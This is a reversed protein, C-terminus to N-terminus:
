GKFQSQIVKGPVYSISVRSENIQKCKGNYFSRHFGEFVPLIDQNILGYCRGIETLLIRDSLDHGYEIVIPFLKGIGYPSDEFGSVHLGYEPLHVEGARVAKTPIGVHHYKRM